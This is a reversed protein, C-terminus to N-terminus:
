LTYVRIGTTVERDPSLVKIASIIIDNRLNRRLGQVLNQDKSFTTGLTVPGLFAWTRMELVQALTLKCALFSKFIYNLSKLHPAPNDVITVRLFTDSM